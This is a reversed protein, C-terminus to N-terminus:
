AHPHDQRVFGLGLLGTILVVLSAPEPVPDSPPLPAVTGSNFETTGGIGNADMYALSFSYPLEVTATISFETGVPGFTQIFATSGSVVTSTVTGVFTPEASNGNTISTWIANAELDNSGNHYYFQFPASNINWVGNGAPTPSFSFSGISYNGVGVSTGDIAPGLVSGGILTVNITNSGATFLIEGGGDCSSPPQSSAASSTSPASRLPM